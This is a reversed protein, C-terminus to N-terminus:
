YGWTLLEWQGGETRAMWWQWDTYEYDVNWAGAQESTKPSHYDTLFEICQTYEADLGNAKGLERLWELNEETLCEDGAYRISHLECGKWTGFEKRILLIAEDMDERTYVASEGYDPVVNKAVGGGCGDLLLVCLLLATWITLNKRM